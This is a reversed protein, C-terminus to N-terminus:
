EIIECGRFLEWSIADISLFIFILISSGTASQSSLITIKVVSYYIGSYFICLVIGFIIFLLQSALFTQWMEQRWALIGIFYGELYWKFSLNSVLFVRLWFRYILNRRGRIRLSKTSHEGSDFFFVWNEFALKFTWIFIYETGHRNAM